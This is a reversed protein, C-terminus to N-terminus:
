SWLIKRFTSLDKEIEYHFHLVKLSVWVPAFNALCFAGDAWFKRKLIEDEARFEGKASIDSSRRPKLAEQRCRETVQTCNASAM